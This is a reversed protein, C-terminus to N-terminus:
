FLDSSTPMENFSVASFLIISLVIIVVYWILYAKCFNARWKNGEGFGWVFLMIINVCPILLIVLTLIWQGVTMPEEMYPANYNQQDYQVHEVNNYENQNQEYNDM